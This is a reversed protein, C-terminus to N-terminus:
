KGIRDATRKIYESALSRYDACANCKENFDCVTRKVINSRAADTNRRIKTAFINEPKFFTECIKYITKFNKTREDAMTLLTGLFSIDYQIHKTLKSILEIIGDIGIVADASESDVCIMYSNCVMISNILFHNNISPPCDILIYDFSEVFEPEQKFKNLLGISRTPFTPDMSSVQYDARLNNPLLFLNSYKSEVVCDSLKSPSTIIDGFTRSYEYRGVKGLGETANGQPDADIILVRLKKKTLQYGLNKTTTTKGVGGKNNLICTVVPMPVEGETELSKRAYHAPKPRAALQSDGFRRETKIARKM